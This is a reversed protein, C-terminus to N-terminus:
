SVCKAQAESDIERRRGACGAIFLHGRVLPSADTHQWDRRQICVVRQSM